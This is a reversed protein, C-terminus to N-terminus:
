AAQAAGPATYVWFKLFVFNWVMTLGTALALAILDSGVFPLLFHLAGANIVIGAITTAYFKAIEGGTVTGRQEFTWFRHLLFAVMSAAIFSIAKAGVLFGGFIATFRTLFFYVSWDVGTNIIGTAAFKVIQREFIQPRRLIEM